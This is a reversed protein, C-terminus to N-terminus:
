EVIKAFEDGTLSYDVYGVGSWAIGILCETEGSRARYVTLDIGDARGTSDLLELNNPDPAAGFLKRYYDEAYYQVRDDINDSTDYLLLEIDVFGSGSQDVYCKGTEDVAICGYDEKDKEVSFVTMENGGVTRQEPDTLSYDGESGYLDELYALAYSRLADMNDAGTFEDYVELSLMDILEDQNEEGSYAYEVCYINEDTLTYLYYHSEEDKVYIDRDFSNDSRMKAYMEVDLAKPYENVPLGSFTNKEISLKISDDSKENTFEYYDAGSSTLSFGAPYTLCFGDNESGFSTVDSGTIPIEGAPEDNESAASSCGAFLILCALVLFFLRKM